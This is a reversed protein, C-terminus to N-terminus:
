DKLMTCPRTTHKEGTSVHFVRIQGEHYGVAIEAGGPHLSVSCVAGNEEDGMSRALQGLHGSWVQRVVASVRCSLGLM